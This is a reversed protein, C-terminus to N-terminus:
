DLWFTEEVLMVGAPLCENLLGAYTLAGEEVCGAPTMNNLCHLLRTTERQTQPLQAQRSTTAMVLLHGSAPRGAVDIALDVLERPDLDALQGGQEWEVVEWDVCACSADCARYVAMVVCGGDREDCRVAICQPSNSEGAHRTHDIWVDSPSMGSVATARAPGPGERGPLTSRQAPYFMYAVCAATAMITAIRLIPHARQPAGAVSSKPRLLPERGFAQLRGRCVGCAALHHHESTTAVANGAALDALRSMALCTASRPEDADPADLSGSELMMRLQDQLDRERM